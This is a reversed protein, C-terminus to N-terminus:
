RRTGNSVHDSAWPIARLMLAIRVMRSAGSAAAEPLRPGPPRGAKRDIRTGGCRQVCATSISAGGTLTLRAASTAAAAADRYCRVTGHQHLLLLRVGLPDGYREFRRQHSHCYRMPTRPSTFCGDIACKYEWPMYAGSQKVVQRVRERTLGLSAGISAVNEGAKYRRVMEANRREIGPLDAAFPRGQRGMTVGPHHTLKLCRRVLTNPAGCGACKAISRGIVHAKEERRHPLHLPLLGRVGCAPCPVMGLGSIRPCIM